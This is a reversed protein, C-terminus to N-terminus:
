RRLRAALTRLPVPSLLEEPHLGQYGAHDLERAVAVAAAASGGAAAYPIDIGVEAGPHYRGIAACLAEEADGRPPRVATAPAATGHTERTHGPLAHWAALDDPSHPPRDCLVIRDPPILDAHAAVSARVHDLLPVLGPRRRTGAVYAELGVQGPRHAAPVAFVRATAAGPASRLCGTLRPVNVWSHGALQWTAPFRTPPFGLEATLAALELDTGAPAAAWRWILATVAHLLTGTTHRDLVSRHALLSLEVVPGDLLVELHADLADDTKGPNKWQLTMDPATDPEIYWARSLVDSAFYNYGVGIRVPHGREAEAQAKADRMDWYSHHAHEWADMASNKVARLARSATTAGSLDIRVPGRQFFCGVVHELEPPRNAFSSQLVFRNHGCHAGLLVAYAALYVLSPLTRNRRALTEVSAHLQASRLAAKHYVATPQGAGPGTLPQGTGPETVDPPAGTQRTDAAAPRFGPFTARPAQSFCEQLYDLARKRHEHLDESQEHRAQESPTRAAPHRQPHPGAGLLAEFDRWLAEIGAGDAAIHNLVIILRFPRGASTMLAFRVPLDTEPDMPAEACRSTLGAPSQGPELGLVPVDVPRLPHVRQVPRGDNGQPFTTRLSEHGRLLEQVAATIQERSASEPVAWSTAIKSSGETRLFRVYWYNEQGWALPADSATQTHVTRHGSM